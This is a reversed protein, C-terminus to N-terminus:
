EVQLVRDLPVFVGLSIKLTLFFVVTHLLCRADTIAIAYASVAVKQINVIRSSAVNQYCVLRILRLFIIFIIADVLDHAITVM